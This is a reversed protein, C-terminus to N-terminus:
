FGSHCMNILNRKNLHVEFQFHTSKETLKSVLSLLLIHLATKPDIGTYKEFLHKLNAIEIKEPLSSLKM